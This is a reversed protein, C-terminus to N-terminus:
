VRDVVFAMRVDDKYYIEILKGDRVIWHTVLQKSMGYRMAFHKKSALVYGANNLTLLAQAFAPLSLFRLINKHNGEAAYALGSASLALKIDHPQLDFKYVNKAM